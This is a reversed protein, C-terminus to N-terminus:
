IRQKAWAAMLVEGVIRKAVKDMLREVVQSQYVPGSADIEETMRRGNLDFVCRWFTTDSAFDASRQLIASFGNGEMRYSEVVEERASAEMERLLRVSEDTPARREFVDVRSPGSNIVTRNFM